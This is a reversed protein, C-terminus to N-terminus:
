SGLLYRWFSHFDSARRRPGTIVAMHIQLLRIMQPNTGFRDKRCARAIPAQTVGVSGTREFLM